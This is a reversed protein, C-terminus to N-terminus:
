LYGYGLCDSQTYNSVCRNGKEIHSSKRDYDNEKKKGSSGKMPMSFVITQLRM